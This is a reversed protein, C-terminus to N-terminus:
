PAPAVPPGRRELRPGASSRLSPPLPPLPLPRLCLWPGFTIFWEMVLLLGGCDLGCQRLAQELDRRRKLAQAALKCVARPDCGARASAGYLAAKFGVGRSVEVM